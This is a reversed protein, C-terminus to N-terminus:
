RRKTGGGDEGRCSVEGAQHDSADFLGPEMTVGHESGWRVRYPPGAVLGPPRTNFATACAADRM